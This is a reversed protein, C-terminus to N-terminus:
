GRGPRRGPQHIDALRRLDPLPLSTRSSPHGDRELLQWGSIERGLEAIEAQTVPPSDHRCATCREASLTSM